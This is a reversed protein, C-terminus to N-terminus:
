IIKKSAKVLEVFARVAPDRQAALNIESANYKRNHLNLLGKGDAEEITRVITNLRTDLERIDFTDKGMADKVFARYEPRVKDLTVTERDYPMINQDTTTAMIINKM